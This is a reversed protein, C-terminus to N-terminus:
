ANKDLEKDTKEKVTEVHTENTKEVKTLRTKAKNLNSCEVVKGNRYKFFYIDNKYRILTIQYVGKDTEFSQNKVVEGNKLAEIFRFKM